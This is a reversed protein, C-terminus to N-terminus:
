SQMRRKGKKDLSRFNSEQDQQIAAIHCRAAQQQESDQQRRNGWSQREDIEAGDETILIRPHSFVWELSSLRTQLGNDASAEAGTVQM